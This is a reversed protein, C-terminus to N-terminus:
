NDLMIYYIAGVLVLSFISCYILNILRVFRWNSNLALQAATQLGELQYLNLAELQDKAHYLRYVLPLFMLVLSFVLGLTFYTCPQDSMLSDVRSVIKCGIDVVSLELKHAEGNEWLMCNVACVARVPILSFIDFV